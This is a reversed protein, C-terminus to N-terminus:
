YHTFEPHQKLSPPSQAAGELDSLIVTFFYYTYIYIKSLNPFPGIRVRLDPFTLFNSTKLARKENLFIKLLPAM